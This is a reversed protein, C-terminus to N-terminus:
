NLFSLSNQYAEFNIEQPTDSQLLMDLYQIYELAGYVIDIRSMKRRKRGTSIPLVHRLNVFSDNMINMRKRERINAAVRQSKTLVRKKGEDNSTTSSSNNEDFFDDNELNNIGDFVDNNDLDFNSIEDFVSDVSLRIVNEATSKNAKKTYTRKPKKAVSEINEDTRTRKSAATRQITEQEPSSFYTNNTSSIANVRSITPSINFSSNVSSYGSSFSESQNFSPTLSFPQQYGYYSQSYASQCHPFAPATM